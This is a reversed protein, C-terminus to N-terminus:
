NVTITTAKTTASGKKPKVKVTVVCAGQKLAKISTGSVKCIKRSSKAVKATAKAKAPVSMEIQTALAKIKMKKGKALTPLPKTVAATTTATTTTQTVIPAICDSLADSGAPSTYGSPCATASTAGTTAVYSNAPSQTCALSGTLPVGGDSSFTGPRCAHKFTVNTLTPQFGTLTGDSYDVRIQNVGPRLLSNGPGNSGSSGSPLRTLALEISSYPDITFTHSGASQINIRPVIAYSANGYVDVIQIRVLGGPDLQPITITFTYDGIITSGDLTDIITQSAKAPAVSFASALAFSIVLSVSKLIRSM